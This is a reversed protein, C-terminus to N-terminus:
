HSKATIGLFQYKEGLRLRTIYTIEQM